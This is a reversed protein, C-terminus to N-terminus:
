AAAPTPPHVRSHPSNLGFALYDIEQVFKLGEDALRQIMRIMTHDVSLIEEVYQLQRKLGEDSTERKLRDATQEVEQVGWTCAEGMDKITAFCYLVQDSKERITALDDESM